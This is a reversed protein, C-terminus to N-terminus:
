GEKKEEDGTEQELAEEARKKKLAAKLKDAFMGGFLGGAAPAPPAAENEPAEKEEAAEAEEPEVAEPEAPEAKEKSEEEGPILAGLETLIDGEGEKLASLAEKESEEEQLEEELVRRESKRTKPRRDAEIKIKKKEKEKKLAAAPAPKEKEREVKAKKDLDLAALAARRAEEEPSVEMGLVDAVAVEDIPEHPESAIAALAMEEPSLGGAPEEAAAEAPFAVPVAEAKPPPALRYFFAGKKKDSKEFEPTSLLTLEVDEQTTRRLLDVLHYARLYHVAAGASHVSFAKFVMILLERLDKGEREATLAAIRTLHDREIYIIKNPLALTATEGADIFADAAADYVVKAVAIKKKSKKIWFTFHVPGTKELTLSTGQPVAAAAFFDRLGLFYGAKPFYYVTTSKNDDKDTFIYELSHGLEKNYWRPIKVGGSLIERWGLYVKLPVERVPAPLIKEAPDFEPLPAEPTALPLGQSMVNLLRKLHWKGWQLPSVQLFDKKHKTELLHNLWLCHFDFRDSSPELGFFSRVLEATAVSQGTEAIRAEIAAITEEPVSPPDSRLQWHDAWSFFAPSKVMAARLNQGLMKIDRDTMPLETLRPDEGAGMVQPAIGTLGFNSPLLVRTKTKTMYDVYRRFVGGGAYDVELMECNLTRDLIKRVVKLVVAGRFPEHTKSSVTLLEDYEKYVSDGNEYACNPDYVKVIDTRMGATKLFALKETLEHLTFPRRTKALEAELFAIDDPTVLVLANDKDM